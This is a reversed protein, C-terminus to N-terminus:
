LKPQATSSAVSRNDADVSATAARSPRLSSAGSGAELGGDEPVVAGLLALADAVHADADPGPRSPTPPLSSHRSAGGVTTNTTSPLGGGGMVFHASSAAADVAVGPPAGGGGGGVAV